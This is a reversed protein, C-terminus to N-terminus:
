RRRKTKSKRSSRKRKKSKRKKSKRKRTKRKKGGGGWKHNPDGLQFDLTALEIIEEESLRPGDIKSEMYKTHLANKREVAEERREASRTTSIMDSFQTSNMEELLAAMEADEAEEEAASRQAEAASRQAEAARHQAEPELDMEITLDRPTFEEIIKINEAIKQILDIPLEKLLTSNICKALALRLKAEGEACWIKALRSAGERKDFRKEIQNGTKKDRLIFYIDGQGGEKRISNIIFGKEFDEFPLIDPDGIPLINDGIKPEYVEYDGEGRKLQDMNILIQGGLPSGTFWVYEPEGSQGFLGVRLYKYIKGKDEGNKKVIFYPPSEDLM